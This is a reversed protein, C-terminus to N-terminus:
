QAAALAAPTTTRAPHLFLAVLRVRQDAPSNGALYDGGETEWISCYAGPATHCTPCEEAAAVHIFRAYHYEMEVEELADQADLVALRANLRDRKAWTWRENPTM